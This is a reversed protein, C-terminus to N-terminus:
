ILSLALIIAINPFLKAYVNRQHGEVFFTWVFRIHQFIHSGPPQSKTEKCTYITFDEFIIKYWLVPKIQFVIPLFTGQTFLVTSIIGVWQYVYSGPSHAWKGQVIKLTITSLHLILPSWPHITLLLISTMSVHKNEQRTDWYVKRQVYTWSTDGIVLIFIFLHTAIGSCLYVGNAGTPAEPYM